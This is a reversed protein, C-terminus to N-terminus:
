AGLRSSIRLPHNFSGRFLVLVGAIRMDRPAQTYRSAYLATCLQDSTRPRRTQSLRLRALDGTIRMDRPIQAPRQAYLTAGWQSVVLRFSKWSLRFQILNIAFCRGRLFQLHGHDRPRTSNRRVLCIKTKAPRLCSHLSVPSLKRNHPVCGM